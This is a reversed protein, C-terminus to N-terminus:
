TAAVTRVLGSVDRILERPIGGLARNPDALWARAAADDPGLLAYLSRFLCVFLAALQLSKSNLRIAGEAGSMRSAKAASVGIISALEADPVGLIKAAKLAARSLVQNSDLSAAM